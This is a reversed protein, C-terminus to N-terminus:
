AQRAIAEAALFEVYQDTTMLETQLAKRTDECVDGKEVMERGAQEVSKLWIDVMEKIIPDESKLLNGCTRYIELVPDCSAMAARLVTFNGEGPFGCNSIIVYKREEEGGSEEGAGIDWINEGEVTEPKKLPMLRDIFKKMLATMNWSYVPTGFVVIDSNKYTVLLNEMDDQVVCEGPTKYWCNFCGQCQAVTQNAIYVTETGAGAERAGKLFAQAIIDTASSACGPSGNFVTVKM